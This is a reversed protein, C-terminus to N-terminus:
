ALSGVFAKVLKLNWTELELHNFVSIGSDAGKRDRSQYRNFFELSDDSGRAFARPRVQFDFPFGVM